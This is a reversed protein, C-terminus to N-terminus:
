SIDYGLFMLIRIEIEVNLEEIRNNILCWSFGLTPRFWRLIYIICGILLKLLPGKLFTKGNGM